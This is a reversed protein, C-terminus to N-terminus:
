EGHVLLANANRLQIAIGELDSATFLCGVNKLPRFYYNYEGCPIYIHGCVYSRKIVAYSREAKLPKPIPPNTEIPYSM